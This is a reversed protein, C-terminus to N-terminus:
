DTRSPCPSDPPYLRWGHVVAGAGARQCAACLLGSPPDAAAGHRLGPGGSETGGVGTRQATVFLGAHFRYRVGM